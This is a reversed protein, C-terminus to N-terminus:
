FLLVMPQQLPTIVSPLKVPNNYAFILPFQLPFMKLIFMKIFFLFSLQM